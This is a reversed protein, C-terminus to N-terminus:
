LTCWSKYGKSCMPCMPEKAEALRLQSGCCRTRSKLGQNLTGRSTSRRDDRGPDEAFLQRLRLNRISQYHEALAKWAPGQNLAQTQATLSTNSIV